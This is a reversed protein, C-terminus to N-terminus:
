QLKAYEAKAEALLPLDPDADKWLAFFDQYAIRAQAKDGAAAYARGMGLEAMFIYPSGPRSNRYALVKQFEQNADSTKGAKLFALGHIYMTGQDAREYPQAQQLLDLARTPNNQGLEMFAQIGPVALSQVMTDDPRLKAVEDLLSKAKADQGVLALVGAAGLKVYPSTSIKLAAAADDTAQSRMGALAECQAQDLLLQAAGELFNMRRGQEVVRGIIERMKKLRGQAGAIDAYITDIQTAWYPNQRALAEERALTVKDGQLIAVYALAAHLGMGGIKRNIAQQLIANADDFRGMGSYASATNGYGNWTDPSLRISELGEEVSRQFDGLNNYIGALNTHPTSDRPYTQEFLQYAQITKDIDGRTDYYHSTIYLRERESARDKLEFAKQTNQEALENQGTNGYCTGLRAYAMAFNPDLEIAHQYFPIAATDEGINHQVDGLSLAKLAELSSTTAQELPMDFKQISALSEGLKMRLQSSASGLAKLVEEKSNATAQTQALSDGTSSNLAELTLVYQTGLSSISGTLIAKIGNRQCIERGVESTIRTDMPRGMFKLTEQVRQDPFVNLFPSQELEVAVAKKLTGDFVADGTTNVFDTLLISDRETMTPRRHFYFFAGIAAIVVVAAAVITGARRTKPPPVVAPASGSRPTAAHSVAASPAEELTLVAASRGSSTDRKLRKLDARVDAASQYRLERDKELLKNIIQELEPSIEFNLRVPSVPAKHLIADFILASTSGGFAARGTAMEYLVVGFSFLDTRADLEEGRAQEPSMYAITGMATGPSTLHEEATVMTAASSAGGYQRGPAVKALGFDLIKAQGRNTLFINAPKIDRHVIGKTHAADLADAIQLAYEILDEAKIPGAAIRHKFTQGELLQMAIFTHGDAEDIEYITCINPHDLASATRAERKFRELAQPDQSFQEPLFKLAVFRGLKTDEAKYVVGMGGGGLQEVIRYHSITRDIM